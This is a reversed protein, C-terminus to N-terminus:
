RSSPEAHGLMGGIKESTNSPVGELFGVFVLNEDLARISHKEGPEFIVLNNARIPYEKGDGGTFMGTGQLVVVYFPSDPVSHAQIRQGPKLNWRLVRGTRSVYLAQADPHDPTFEIGHLLNMTQM